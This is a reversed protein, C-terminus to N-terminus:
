KGHFFPASEPTKESTRVGTFVSPQLVLLDGVVVVCRNRLPTDVLGFRMSAAFGELSVGFHSKKLFYTTRFNCSSKLQPSSMLHHVSLWFCCSVESSVSPQAGIGWRERLQSRALLENRERPLPCHKRHCFSTSDAAVCGRLWTRILLGWQFVCGSETPSSACVYSVNVAVESSHNTKRNSDCQSPPSM